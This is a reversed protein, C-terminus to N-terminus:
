PPPTRRWRDWVVVARMTQHENMKLRISALNDAVTYVSISLRRATTKSCGTASMADMVDAERQTLGWPSIKEASM